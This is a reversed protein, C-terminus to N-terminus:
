MGEDLMKLYKKRSKEDTESDIMAGIANRLDEADEHRMIQIMTSLIDLRLLNCHKRAASLNFEEIMQRVIRDRYAGDAIAVKWINQLYQRQTIFKEDDALPMMADLIGDFEGSKASKALNCLLMAAISRQYSNEDALKRALAGRHSGFWDVPTETLRLLAQFASYRATDDKLSLMEILTPVDENMLTELQAANM